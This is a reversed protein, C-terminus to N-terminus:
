VYQPNLQDDVLVFTKPRFFTSVGGAGFNYLVTDGPNMWRIQNVLNVPIPDVGDQANDRILQYFTTEEGDIILTFNDLYPQNWGRTDLIHTYDTKGTENLQEIIRKIPYLNNFRFRGGYTLMNFGLLRDDVSHLEYGVHRDGEIYFQTPLHLSGTSTVCALTRQAKETMPILKRM